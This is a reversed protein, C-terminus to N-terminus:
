SNNIIANIIILAIFYFFLIVMYPWIFKLYHTYKIGVLELVIMVVGSPTVIRTFSQGFMYANVVINRSCGINDALPAFVPMSLMALGSQSSIFLGLFIFILIMLIAFVIKPLGNICNSLCNLITDQINGEELTKNIGRAFGIIFAVGIFDSAGKMFQKIAEQEGKKLLIMLIIGIVLFTGAMEEFYWDFLMVGTIM